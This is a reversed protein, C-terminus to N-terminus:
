RIRKYSYNNKIYQHFYSGHSSANMLSRYVIKPVNYYEYIGGSVFQIELTKLNSEYGISGIDRSSVSVRQM